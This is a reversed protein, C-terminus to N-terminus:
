VSVGALNLSPSHSLQAERHRPVSIDLPQAPISKAIRIELRKENGQDAFHFKDGDDDEHFHITSPTSVPLASLPFEFANWMLM